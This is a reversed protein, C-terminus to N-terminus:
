IGVPATKHQQSGISSAWSSRQSDTPGLLISGTKVHIYFKNVPVIFWLWLGVIVLLIYVVVTIHIHSGDRWFPGEPFIKRFQTKLTINFCSILSTIQRKFKQFIGFVKQSICMQLISGM